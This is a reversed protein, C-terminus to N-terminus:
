RFMNLRADIESLMNQHAEKLRNSSEEMEKLQEEYHARSEPTLSRDEGIALEFIQTTSILQAIQSTLKLYEAKMNLLQTRNLNILKLQHDSIKSLTQESIQRFAEIQGGPSLKLIQRTNRKALRRRKRENM